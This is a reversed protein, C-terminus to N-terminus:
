FIDIGTKLIYEIQEKQKKEKRQALEVEKKLSNYVSIIETYKSKKVVSFIEQLKENDTKDFLISSDGNLLGTKHKCIKGYIGAQCNCHVKLKNDLFEFHVDYPESTSGIVQIITNENM